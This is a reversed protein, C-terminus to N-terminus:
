IKLNSLIFGLAYKKDWLILWCTKDLKDKHQKVFEFAYKYRCLSYWCDMDLKDAHEKIYSFATKNNCLCVWNLPSLKDTHNMVFEIIRKKNNKCLDNWFLEPILDVTHDLVDIGKKSRTLYSWIHASDKTLLESFAATNKSIINFCSENLKDINNKILVTLSSKLYSAINELVDNNLKKNLCYYLTVNTKSSIFNNIYQRCLYIWFRQPIAYTYEEMLKFARSQHEYISKWYGYGTGYGYQWEEIQEKIFDYAYEKTCLIEFCIGYMLNRKPVLVPLHDKVFEFAHEQDALVMWVSTDEQVRQPSTLIYEKVLELGGKKKAITHWDM